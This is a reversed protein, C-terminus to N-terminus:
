IYKKLKNEFEEKTFKKAQQYNNKSFLILKKKDLAMEKMKVALMEINDIPVLYGNYENEVIERIGASTNYSLVPVGLTIAEILNLPLGESKSAMVIMTAKKLVMEVDNTKGKLYVSKVHNNEIKNKLTGFEPGDGYINLKFNEKELGSQSFADIIHNIQKIKDLRGIFVIEKEEVLSLDRKKLSFRCPNLLYDVNKFNFKERLVTADEQTLVLFKEANRYYRNILYRYIRYMGKGEMALQVSGHFQVITKLQKKKNIRSIIPMCIPNSIIITDGDAILKEIKKTIRRNILEKFFLYPKKFFIDEESYCFLKIKEKELESIQLKQNKEQKSLGILNVEYGMEALINALTENYVQVGGTGGIYHAVIHIKRKKLDNM